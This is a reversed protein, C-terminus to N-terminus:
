HEREVEVEGDASVAPAEDLVILGRRIAVRAAAQEMFPLHDIDEQTVHLPNKKIEELNAM